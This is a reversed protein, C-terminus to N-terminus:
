PVQGRQGAAAAARQPQRRRPVQLRGEHPLLALRSQILSPQSGRLQM